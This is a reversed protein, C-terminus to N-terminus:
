RFRTAAAAGTLTMPEGVAICSFTSGATVGVGGASVLKGARWDSGPKDAEVTLADLVVDLRVIRRWAADPPPAGVLPVAVLGSILDTM